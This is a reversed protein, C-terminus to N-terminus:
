GGNGRGIGPGVEDELGPTFALHETGETDFFSPSALTYPGDVNFDTQLGLFSEFTLEPFYYVSTSHFPGFPLPPPRHFTPLDLCTFSFVSSHLSPIRTITKRVVPSPLDLLSLTWYWWFPVLSLVETIVSSLLVPRFLLM